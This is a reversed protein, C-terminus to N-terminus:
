RQNKQYNGNCVGELMKYLDYAKRGPLVIEIDEIQLVYRGYPGNSKKIVIKSYNDLFMSMRKFM